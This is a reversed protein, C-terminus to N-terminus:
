LLNDFVVLCKGFEFGMGVDDLKVEVGFVMGEDWLGVLM